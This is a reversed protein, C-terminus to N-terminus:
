GGFDEAVFQVERAGPGTAPVGKPFAEALMLGVAVDNALGDASFGSSLGEGLGM